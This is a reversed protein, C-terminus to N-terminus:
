VTSINTIMRSVLPFITAVLFNSLREVPPVNVSWIFGAGAVIGAGTVVIFVVVVVIFVVSVGLVVCVFVESTFVVFVVVSAGIAADENSREAMVFPNLFEQGRRRMSRARATIANRRQFYQAFILLFIPANRIGFIVEEAGLVGADPVSLVLERSNAPASRLSLCSSSSIVEILFLFLLIM